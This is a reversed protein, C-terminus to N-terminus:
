RLSVPLGQQHWAMIAPWGVSRDMGADRDLYLHPIAAVTRVLISKSLMTGSAEGAVQGLRAM